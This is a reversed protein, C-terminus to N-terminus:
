SIHADDKRGFWEKLTELNFLVLGVVAIVIPGLIASRNIDSRKSSRSPM